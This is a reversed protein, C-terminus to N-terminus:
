RCSGRVQRQLRLAGSLTDKRATKLTKVAVGIAVTCRGTSFIVSVPYLGPYPSRRLHTQQLGVAGAIANFTFRTAGRGFERLEESAKFRAERVAGVHFAFLLTGSFAFEHHRTLGEVVAELMHEETLRAIEEAGNAPPDGLIGEASVSASATSQLESRAGAFAPFSSASLVLERPAVPLGPSETAGSGAACVLPVAALLGVVAMVRLRVPELRGAWLRGTPLAARRRPASWYGVAVECRGLSRAESASKAV